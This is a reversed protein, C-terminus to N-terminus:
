WSHIRASTKKSSASSSKMNRMPAATATTAALLVADLCQYTPHSDSYRYATEFLKALREATTSDSTSIHVDSAIAFRFVPVFADDLEQALAAELTEQKAKSVSSVETLLAILAVPLALVAAVRRFFLM